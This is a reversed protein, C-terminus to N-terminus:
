HNDTGFKLERALTYTVSFNTTTPHHTTSFKAVTDLRLGINSNIQTSNPNSLLSLLRNDKYTFLKTLLCKIIALIDSKSMWIGTLYFAGTSILSTNM